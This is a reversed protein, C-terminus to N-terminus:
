FSVKQSNETKLAIGGSEISRDIVVELTKRDTKLKLFNHRINDTVTTYAFDSKQHINIDRSQIYHANQYHVLPNVGYKKVVGFSSANQAVMYEALTRNTFGDSNKLQSQIHPKAKRNLYKPTILTSMDANQAYQSRPGTWDVSQQFRKKYMTQHNGNQSTNPILLNPKSECLKEVDITNM